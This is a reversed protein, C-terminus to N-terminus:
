YRKTLPAPPAGMKGGLLWDLPGKIDEERAQGMIRAMVEGQDDLILTAPLVNGLGARDLMDLDAGIWVDLALNTRGLFQDIKARDKRDDASAAIFRVNQAAYQQSLRALLPLEERCPGCWTAWFNLVVISGRLEAIKHTNGALDKLELNPARKAGAIPTLSCALFALVLSLHFKMQNGKQHLLRYIGSLRCGHSCSRRIGQRDLVDSLANEVNHKM